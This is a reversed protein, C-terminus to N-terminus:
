CRWKNKKNDREKMRYM